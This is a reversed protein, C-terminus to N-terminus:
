DEQFASDPAPSSEEPKATEQPPPQPPMAPALGPATRIHIDRQPFSIEIARERFVRDISFRIATEVELMNDIDTWVRLRFVLASDGFDRFLVDPRPYKLVKPTEGAIELLSKRVLEIDSGYAVGVTINRRIRKDKFSWNTVQSSIFDANPIILSANDYSQIVTSRVNIKKVQAWTGNIEIDDGVQIPREFLLIIGSIFNNFINQLGFGLGIGLAGFAVALSATNLGFAHLSILIGFTWIVYVSITTISAQLGIDMGSKGLFKSQFVWKWIRTAAYTILIVLVAYILGMLSFTMSGVAMPHALFELVRDLVTQRNGWALLLVAALTILWIFQGARILVWQVPYDDYLLDNSRNTSKERYYADWERLLALFIWWWFAIAATKAWSLLWHFSLSAYGTMDLILTVGGVLAFVGKCVIAPIDKGQEKALDQIHSLRVHRWTLLAWIFLWLAGFLRFAVLLAADQGLVRVLPLYATSFLAAMRILRVLRAAQIQGGILDQAPGTLAAQGWRVAMFILLLVAIGSLLPSILFLADQRSYIILIAAIGAPLVSHGVLLVALHNWPGMKEALERGQLLAARVRMLLATVGYLVVFISLASLGASQWLTKLGSKWFGAGLITKGQNLLLTMDKKLSSLADFRFVQDQREFLNKARRQEIAADFRQSLESFAKELSELDALHRDYISGLKSLREGKTKLVASLKRATKELNKATDNKQKANLGALESIQRKVLDNQQELNATEHAIAEAGPRLGETMKQIEVLSSKLDARTKQLVPVDVGASLLLNGFTSLQLQYGNTAATLYIREREARDLREEYAKLAKEEANYSAELTQQLDGVMAQPAQQPPEAGLVSAPLFLCLSLGIRCLLRRFWDSRKKM